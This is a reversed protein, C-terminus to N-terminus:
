GSEKRAKGSNRKGAHESNGFCLRTWSSCPCESPVVAMDVDLRAILSEVTRQAIRTTAQLRDAQTQPPPMLATDPRGAQCQSRDLHEVALQEGPLARWVPTTRGTLAADVQEQKQLLWGAAPPTDITRCDIRM